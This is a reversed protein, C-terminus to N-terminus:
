LVGGAVYYHVWGFMGGEQADPNYYRTGPHAKHKAARGEEGDEFRTVVGLPSTVSTVGDKSGRWIELRPALRELAAAIEPEYVNQHMSYAWGKLCLRSDGVHLRLLTVDLDMGENRERVTQLKELPRRKRIENVVQEREVSGTRDAISAVWLDYDGAKEISVSGTHTVVYAGPQAYEDKSSEVRHRDIM